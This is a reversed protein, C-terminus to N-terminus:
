AQEVNAQMEIRRRYSVESPTAEEGARASHCNCCSCNGPFLRVSFSTFARGNGGPSRLTHDSARQHKRGTRAWCSCLCPLSFPPSPSSQGAKLNPKKKKQRQRQLTFIWIHRPSSDGQLKPDSSQRDKKTVVILGLFWYLLSWYCISEYAGVSIWSVQNKSLGSPTSLWGKGMVPKKDSPSCCTYACSNTYTSMYSWRM